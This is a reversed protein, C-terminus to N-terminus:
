WTFVNTERSEGHHCKSLNLNVKIVWKGFIVSNLVLEHNLTSLDM